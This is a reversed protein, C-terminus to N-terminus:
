LQLYFQVTTRIAKRESITRDFYRIGTESSKHHSIFYDILIEVTQSFNTIRKLSAEIDSLFCEFEATLRDILMNIVSNECDMDSTSDSTEYMSTCKLFYENICNLVSFLGNLDKLTRSDKVLRSSFNDFYPKLTDASLQRLNYVQTLDAKTFVSLSNKRVLLVQEQKQDIYLGLPFRADDNYQLLISYFRSWCENAVDLFEDEETCNQAENEIVQIILEKLSEASNPMESENM